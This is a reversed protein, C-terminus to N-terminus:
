KENLTEAVKDRWGRDEGTVHVTGSMPAAWKQVEDWMGFQQFIRLVHPMISIGAGERDAINARQEFLAYDIGALRLCHAMALGAPGGGIILVKFGVM